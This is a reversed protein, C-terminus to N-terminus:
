RDFNIQGGRQADEIREGKHGMGAKCVEGKRKQAAHGDDGAQAQGGPTDRLREPRKTAAAEGAEAPHQRQSAKVLAIQHMVAIKGARVPSAMNTAKSTREPLM